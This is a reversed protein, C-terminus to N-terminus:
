KGAKWLIAVLPQSALLAKLAGSEMQIVGLKRDKASSARAVLLPADKGIGAHLRAKAESEFFLTPGGYTATGDSLLYGLAPKLGLSRADV